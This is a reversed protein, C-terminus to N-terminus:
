SDRPSPSTYLLCAQAKSPLNARTMLWIMQGLGVSGILDEVPHGRFAIKGPAMDIIATRWWDRVHQEHDM